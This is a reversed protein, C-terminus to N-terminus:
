EAAPEQEYVDLAAGAIERFWRHVLRSRRSFTALRVENARSFPSHSLLTYSSAALALPENLPTPASAEDVAMVATRGALAFWGYAAARM